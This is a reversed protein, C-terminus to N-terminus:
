PRVYVHGRELARDVEAADVTAIRAENDKFGYSIVLDAQPTGPAWCMGGCFEIVRENFCFPLSMRLVRMDRAYEIFRHYYYRKYPENPLPHATHTIALWGGNGWCILQSSGSINDTMFPPPTDVIKEGNSNVVIGPRWLFLPEAAYEWKIPSWNKETERPTRLMRKMSTQEYADHGNKDVARVLKTLVQECNGDQHLQRVTATCWIDNQWSFLRVDEFGTVLSFECPLNGPRYCERVSLPEHHSVDAGMDLMFNRTDIPNEANATGDTATIIYRGADDIRYNVARVNVHLKKDHLVVSPNMPVLNDPPMFPISRWKFSPCMAELPLIYWYLNARAGARATWYPTIKLGLEDTARRGKDFKGPVYAAAISIEEKIGVEYVYDNVFLSDNPKPLHEVAEACALAAAQMNVHERYWRALDYMAEARTPRRCYADLLNGVFEDKYGSDKRAHAYSVQAQWVEEDWGGAEVRRRFWTAAAVPQGADRYSSALYYMYRVNDPEDKLGKELLRIDRKFKDPRNAGDAHDIFYAVEEPIRGASAVDLFEHTVGRYRGDVGASLLRANTYHVAGAHQYMEYALGNRDELFRAPDRVVLEMDADILLFFKAKYEEVYKRAHELALNRAQSFDEFTGGYIQGPIGRDRFFKEILGVTDDASGTDLIVYSSIYPAASKLAREIRAAENRVIMNLMLSM